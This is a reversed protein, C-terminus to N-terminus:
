SCLQSNELGRDCLAPLLAVGLFMVTMKVKGNEQNMTQKTTYVKTKWSESLKPNNNSTETSPCSSPAPELKAQIM